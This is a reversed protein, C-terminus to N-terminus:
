AVGACRFLDAMTFHGVQRSPLSPRWETEANLILIILLEDADITVEPDSGLVGAPLKSRLWQTLEQLDSIMAAETEHPTVVMMYSVVYM